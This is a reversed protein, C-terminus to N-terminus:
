GGEPPETGIEVPKGLYERTLDLDEYAGQEEPPLAWIENWLDRWEQLTMSIVPDSEARYNLLEIPTM